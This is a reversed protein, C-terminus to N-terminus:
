LLLKLKVQTKNTAPSGFLLSFFRAARSLLSFFRAPFHRAARALRRPPLPSASKNGKCRALNVPQNKLRLRPRDIIHNMRKM